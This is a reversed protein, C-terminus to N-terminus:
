EDQKNKWVIGASWRRIPEILTQGSVINELEEFTGGTKIVQRGADRISSPWGIILQFRDEAGFQNRNNLIWQALKRACELMFNATTEESTMPEVTSFVNVYDGDFHPRFDIRRIGFSNWEPETAEDGIEIATM